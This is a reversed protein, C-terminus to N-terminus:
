FLFRGCEGTTHMVKAASSPRLSPLASLGKRAPGMQMDQVTVAPSGSRRNKDSEVSWAAWVSPLDIVLAAWGCWAFQLGKPSFWIPLRQSPCRSIAFWVWSCTSILTPSLWAQTTNKVLTCISCVVEQLVFASPFNRCFTVILGCLPLLKKRDCTSHTIMLSYVLMVQVCCGAHM